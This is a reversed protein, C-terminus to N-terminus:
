SATADSPTTTTGSGSPAAPTTTTGGGSQAPPAAPMQERLADAVTSEDLGLEDALEAAMDTASPPGGTSESRDPRVADMAAQLKAESVGLTEALASLDPRGGQGQPPQTDQQTAATGQSASASQASDDGASGCATTALAATVGLAALFKRKHHRM